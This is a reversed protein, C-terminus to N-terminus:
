HQIAVDASYRPGATAASSDTGYFIQATFTYQAIVGADCASYGRITSTPVVIFFRGSECYGQELLTVDSFAPHTGPSLFLCTGNRKFSLTIKNFAYDGPNCVGGIQIQNDSAKTVNTTDNTIRVSTAATATSCSPTSCYSSPNFVGSSKTGGSCASLLATMVLFQIFYSFSKM